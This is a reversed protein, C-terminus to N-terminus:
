YKRKINKNFRAEWKKMEKTISKLFYNIQHFNSCGDNIVVGDGDNISNMFYEHQSQSEGSERSTVVVVDKSGCATLMDNIVQMLSYYFSPNVGMVNLMFDVVKLSDCDKYMEVVLITLISKLKVTDYTVSGKDLNSFLEYHIWEGVSHSYMPCLGGRLPDAGLNLVENYILADVYYVISEISESGILIDYPWNPYIIQNKKSIMLERLKEHSKPNDIKKQM